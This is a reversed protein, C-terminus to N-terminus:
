LILKNSFKFFRVQNQLYDIVTIMNTETKANNVNVANNALRQASLRNAIPLKQQQQSQQRMTNSAEVPKPVSQPRVIVSAVQKAVVPPKVVVSQLQSKPVNMANSMSRSADLKHRLDGAQKVPEERREQQSKAALRNRMDEPMSFTGTTKGNSYNNESNRWNESGSSYNNGDSSSRVMTPKSQQQQQQTQPQQQVPKKQYSQYNSNNNRDGGAPRLPQKNNSYTAPRNYNYAPRYNNSNNQGYVTSYSTKNWNQNTKGPFRLTAKSKKQKTAKQLRVM